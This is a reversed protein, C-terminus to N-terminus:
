AKQGNRKKKRKTAAFVTLIGDLFAAQQIIRERDNVEGRLWLRFEKFSGGDAKAVNGITVAVLWSRDLAPIPKRRSGINFRLLRAVKHRVENQSDARAFVAWGAQSLAREDGQIVDMEDSVNFKRDHTKTNIRIALPVKRIM